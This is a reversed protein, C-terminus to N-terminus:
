VGDPTEEEDLQHLLRSLMARSELPNDADLAAIAATLSERTEQTQGALRLAAEYRRLKQESRLILEHVNQRTVNMEEAIEALTLDEDCHLRVAQRQKSTLLGGYCACLTGLEVNHLLRHEPGQASGM